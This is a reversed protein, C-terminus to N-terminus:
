KSEGLDFGNITHKFAKGEMRSRVLLAHYKPTDSNEQLADYNPANTAGRTDFRKGPANCKPANCKPADCKGADFSEVELDEAEGLNFGGMAHELNRRETGEWEFLTLIKHCAALNNIASTAAELLLPRKGLKLM